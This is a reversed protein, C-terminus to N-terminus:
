ALAQMPLNFDTLGVSRLVATLIIEGNFGLWNPSLSSAMWGTPHFLRLRQKSYHSASAFPDVDELEIFLPWVRIDGGFCFGLGQESEPVTYAGIFNHFGRCSGKLWDGDNALEYERCSSELTM